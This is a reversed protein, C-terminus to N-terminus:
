FGHLRTYTEVSVQLRYNIGHQDIQESVTVRDARIVTLERTRNSQLQVSIGYIKYLCVYKFRM